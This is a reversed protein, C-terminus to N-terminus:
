YRTVKVTAKATDGTEGNAGYGYVTFTKTGTTTIRFTVTWTKVGDATVVSSVTISEKKGASNKLWCLEQRAPSFWVEM